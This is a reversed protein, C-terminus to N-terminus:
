KYLSVLHEGVKYCLRAAEDKLCDPMKDGCTVIEFILDAKCGGEYLAHMVDEWPIFGTFPLVHLDDKGRNDDIHLAKIRDGLKLISPVQNDMMRNAHGVDWCVGVYESNCSDMLAILEDATVGFRRRNGADCMNEFALGVGIKASLELEQDFIKKNYEIQAEVDGTESTLDTVPHMVAWKGGVMKTIELARLLMDRFFKTGEPDKLLEADRSGRYPPHSQVFEIGLKAAENCIEDVQQKWDDQHLPTQRRSLACLNIDLVKFGAARCRRMSEIYGIYDPSERRGRYLSTMTGVRMYAEANMNKNYHNLIVFYVDKTLIYNNYLFQSLFDIYAAYFPSHASVHMYKRLTACFELM